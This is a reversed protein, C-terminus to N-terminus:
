RHMRGALLAALLVGGLCWTGAHIMPVAEGAALGSYRWVGPLVKLVTSAIPALAIFPGPGLEAPSTASAIGIYLFLAAAVSNGLLWVGPLAAGAAAGAAAAGALADRAVAVGGVARGAIAAEAVVAIAVVASAVTVAGLWRGASVALRSTPHTLILTLAARDADGGAGYAVALLAALMGARLALPTLRDGGARVHLAVLGITMLTLWVGLRTRLMRIRLLQWEAVVSQFPM